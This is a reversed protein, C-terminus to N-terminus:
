SVKVSLKRPKDTALKPLEIRLVKLREDVLSPM